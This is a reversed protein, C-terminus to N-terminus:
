GKPSVFGYKITYLEQDNRTLNVVFHDDIPVAGIMHLILILLFGIERTM